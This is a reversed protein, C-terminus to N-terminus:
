NRRAMTMGFKRGGTVVAASANSYRARMKAARGAPDGGKSGRMAMYRVSRVVGASTAAAAADPNTFASLSYGAPAVVLESLPTV